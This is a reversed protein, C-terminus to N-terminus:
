ARVRRRKVVVDPESRIIENTELSRYRVQLLLKNADSDFWHRMERREGAREAARGRESETDPLWKGLDGPLDELKGFRQEAFGPVERMFITLYFAGGVLGLLLLFGYFLLSM